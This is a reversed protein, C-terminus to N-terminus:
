MPTSLLFRPTTTYGPSQRSIGPPLDSRDSSMRCWKTNCTTGAVQYCLLYRADALITSTGSFPYFLECAAGISSPVVASNAPISFSAVSGISNGANSAPATATVSSIDQISSIAFPRMRFDLQISGDARFVQMGYDNTLGVGVNFAIYRFSTSGQPLFWDFGSPRSATICAFGDSQIAVVYPNGTANVQLSQSGSTGNSPTNSGISVTGASVEVYNFALPTTQLSGQNNFVELGYDPM